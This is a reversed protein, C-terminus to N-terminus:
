SKHVENSWQCTEAQNTHHVPNM